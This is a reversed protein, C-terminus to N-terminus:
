EQERSPSGMTLVWDSSSNSGTLETQVQVVFVAFCTFANTASGSLRHKAGLDRVTSPLGVELVRRVEM